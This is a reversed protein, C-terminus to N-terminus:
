GSRAACRATSRPRFLRMEFIPFEGEYLKVKSALTAPMIREILEVVRKHEISNDIRIASYDDTLLDRLLKAM